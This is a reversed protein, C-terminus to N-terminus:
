NLAFVQIGKSLQNKLHTLFIMRKLGVILGNILLSIAPAKLEEILSM